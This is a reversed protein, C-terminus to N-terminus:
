YEEEATDEPTEEAPHEEVKFLDLYADGLFDIITSAILSQYSTEQVAIDGAKGHLYNGIVTATLSEYGQALQGTIVGALVDGSGATAMGPNGTSNIYITDNYVVMSYAGKVNVICNYKKSFTKVKKLKDFDNKWIGILRELEGPHPTLISKPPLLDLLEKHAAMINLADADIVLPCKAQTFVTKLVQLSNEHIGLGMGIGVANYKSSIEISSVYDQENDVELMVEPVTTQLVTEGRLPVQATVLGAGANICARSALVMAGMKGKSGGILFAHGYNGKHSFRQRPKYLPLIEAKSIFKMKSSSQNVIEPDWGIPLAEWAQIYVGTQPLFFLLKPAEFSLTINSRVIYEANTPLSEMFLGSPIDISLVFAKTQNIKKLIAGVWDEPQRNLGIGFVADVIIDQSSIEPFDEESKILKPWYKRDKIRDFNLLFDKSRKDSFNVVYIEVHYGHEILHRGVVLGDGGNNGIGCFIHIPVNAGNLRQHMWNFVQIGAREMLEDSSIGQKQITLKDIERITKSDFIKM